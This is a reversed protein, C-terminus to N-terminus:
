RPAGHQQRGLFEAAGFAHDKGPRSAGAGYVPGKGGLGNHPGPTFGQTLGPSRAAPFGQERLGPTIHLVPRAATLSGARAKHADDRREGGKGGQQQEGDQKMIATGNASPRRACIERIGALAM